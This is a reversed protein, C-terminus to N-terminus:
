SLSFCGGKQVGPAANSLAVPYHGGPQKTVSTTRKRRENQSFPHSNPSSISRAKHPFPWFLILCLTLYVCCPTKLQPNNTGNMLM